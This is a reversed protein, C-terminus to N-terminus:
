IYDLGVFQPIFRPRLCEAPTIVVVEEDSGELIEPREPHREIEGFRRMLARQEDPSLHQLSPDAEVDVDSLRRAVLGFDEFEVGHSVFLDLLDRAERAERLEHALEAVSLDEPRRGAALGADRLAQEAEARAWGTAAQLNNLITKRRQGTAPHDHPLLGM